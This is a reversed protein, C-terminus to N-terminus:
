SFGGESRDGAWNLLGEPRPSPSPESCTWVKREEQGQTVRREEKFTSSVGEGSDEVLCTEGELFDEWM